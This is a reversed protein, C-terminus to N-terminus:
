KGREMMAEHQKRYSDINAIEESTVGDNLEFEEKIEKYLSSYKAVLERVCTYEKMDQFYIPFYEGFENRVKVVGTIYAFETQFTFLEKGPPLCAYNPPLSSQFEAQELVMQSVELQYLKQFFPSLWNLFEDENGCKHFEPDDFPPAPAAPYYIHYKQYLKRQGRHHILRQLYYELHAGTKVHAEPFSLDIGNISICYPHHFPKISLSCPDFQYDSTDFNRSIYYSTVFPKLYQQVQTSTEAASFFM